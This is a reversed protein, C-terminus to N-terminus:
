PSVQITSFGDTLVIAVNQVNDRDGHNFTFMNRHMIELGSATNTHGGIYSIRRIADKLDKKNSYKNLHFVIEADTSFKVVGVRVRFLYTSNIDIINNCYSM